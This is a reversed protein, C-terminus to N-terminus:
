FDDVRVVIGTWGSLVAATGARVAAACRAATFSGPDHPSSMGLGEGAAAIAVAVLPARVGPHPVGHFLRQLVAGMAGMAGM